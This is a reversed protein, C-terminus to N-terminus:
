GERWEKWMQEESNKATMRLAAFFGISPVQGPMGCSEPMLGSYGDAGDEGARFRGCRRIFGGTGGM